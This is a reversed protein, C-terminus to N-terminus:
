KLYVNILAHGRKSTISLVENKFNLNSLKKDLATMDINPNKYEGELLSGAYIKGNYRSIYNGKSKLYLKGEEALHPNKEIEESM